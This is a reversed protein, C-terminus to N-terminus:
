IFPIVNKTEGLYKIIGQNEYFSIFEEDIQSKSLGYKYFPGLITFETKPYKKKIIEAARIFEFIGKEKILRSIFIFKADGKNTFIHKNSNYIDTNVGSGSVIKSNKFNYNHKIFLDYDQKNHVFVFNFKKFVFKYITQLIKNKYHRSEFLFNTGTITAIAKKKNFFLSIGLLLNPRLNFSLCIDPKLKNIFYLLKILKVPYTFLNNSLTGLLYVNQNSFIYKHNNSTKFGIIDVNNTERLKNVLDKRFGTISNNIDGEFMLIKM